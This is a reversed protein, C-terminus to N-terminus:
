CSIQNPSYSSTSIRCTWRTPRTGMASRTARRYRRVTLSYNGTKQLAVGWSSIAGTWDTDQQPAPNQVTPGPQSTGIIWDANGATEAKSNDFLVRHQAVAAPGTAAPGSAVPPATGISSILTGALVVFGSSRALM